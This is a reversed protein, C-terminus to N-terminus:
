FHYGVWVNGGLGKHQGAYGRLRLNVDWPSAATAELKWGVEGMVSSGGADARRIPASLGAASVTGNSEGSFEYDWALGYYFDSRGHRNNVRAGIRLLDSNLADLSYEAQGARFTDGGLHTHFYKGYVDLDRAARKTGGRSESVMEDTLDFIHGVGIHGAWYSADTEYGLNSGDSDHLVSDASNKLRGFRLSGEVYNKSRAIYKAMVGGGNYTADGSGSYGSNSVDYNGKGYEYFVGYSFDGDKLAKDSGVGM